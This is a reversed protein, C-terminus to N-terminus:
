DAHAPWRISFRAGDLSPSASVGADGGHLEAVRAMVALGLGYGGTERNRSDDIYNRPCNV